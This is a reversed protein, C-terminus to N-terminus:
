ARRVEVSFDVRAASGRRELAAVIEAGLLLIISAAELTALLVVATALSGYIVNVMSVSSFYWVLLRRVVEWLLTAAVAGRVAARLSIRQAPLVMYLATLILALGATGLLHLLTRSATALPLAVGVVHLSSRGVVEVVGTILTVLLLGLGLAAVFVYPLMASVLPHRKPATKHHFVRAMTTELVGFAMASFFLLSLGGVWGVVGRHSLFAAVQDTIASARGPVLLELSAALTAILRREEVVHSLGILLLAFLPVLSLLTYYAIAGAMLLGHTRRFSVLVELATRGLGTRSRRAM